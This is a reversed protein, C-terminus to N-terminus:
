GGTGSGMGRPPHTGRRVVAFVPQLPFTSNEVRGEVFEWDRTWPNQVAFCLIEDELASQDGNTTEVRYLGDPISNKVGRRYVVEFDFEVLRLRWKALRVEAKALFLAWKLAHHDPRM